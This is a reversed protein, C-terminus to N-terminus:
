SEERVDAVEGSTIDILDRPAVRFVSNPTGAAAWVADFALLDRDIFVRLCTAHGIPPVGGVPYGTVRRVTDADARRIRGGALAALKDTSVRNAGSAIVLLPQEGALFVLSKAIQAVSTGIAAAAEAATRTSEAFEVVEAPVGTEVLAAQVRQTNTHM